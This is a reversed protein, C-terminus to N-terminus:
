PVYNSTLELLLCAVVVYWRWPLLRAQLPIWAPVLCALLHLSIIGFYQRCVSHVFRRTDLYHPRSAHWFVGYSFFFFVRVCMCAHAELVLLPTGEERIYEQSSVVRARKASLRLLSRRRWYSGCFCSTSCCYLM